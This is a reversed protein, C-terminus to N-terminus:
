SRGGIVFGARQMTCSWDIEHCGLEHGCDACQSFGNAEPQVKKSCPSDNRARRELARVRDRLDEVQSPLTDEIGLWHAILRRV